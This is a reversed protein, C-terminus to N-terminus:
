FTGQIQKLWTHNSVCVCFHNEHFFNKVWLGRSVLPLTPNALVIKVGQFITFADTQSCSSYLSLTLYVKSAQTAIPNDKTHLLRQAATPESLDTNGTSNSFSLGLGLPAPQSSGLHLSFGLIVFRSSVKAKQKRRRTLPSLARLIRWPSSWPSFINFAEMACEELHSPSFTMLECPQHMIKSLGSPPFPLFFYELRRLDLQLEGQERLNWGLSFVGFGPVQPPFSHTPSPPHTSLPHSLPSPLPFSPLPMLSWQEQFSTWVSGVRTFPMFQTVSLCSPQSSVAEPVAESVLLQVSDQLCSPSGWHSAGPPAQWGAAQAAQHERVNYQTNKPSWTHGSHLSM